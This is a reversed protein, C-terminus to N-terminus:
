MIDILEMKEPHFISEDLASKILTMDYVKTIGTKNEYNYFAYCKEQPFKNRHIDKIYKLKDNELFIKLDETGAQLEVKM